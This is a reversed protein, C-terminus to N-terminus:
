LRSRRPNSCEQLLEATKRTKPGLMKDLDRDMSPINDHKCKRCVICWEAQSSRSWAQELGNDMTLPTGFRMIGPQSAKDPNIAVSKMYGAALTQNIIPEFSPDLDQYEDYKLLNASIGRTRTCDHFAFTFILNSGNKLSRQLMAKKSHKTVLRSKVPSHEILPAVYDTSFREIHIHLPAVHLVNHFPNIDAFLISQAGNSTTKSIQRGTKFTIDQPLVSAFLPRMQFHNELTFPRGNLNFYLPLMHDLHDPPNNRLEEFIQNAVEVYNLETIKPVVISM